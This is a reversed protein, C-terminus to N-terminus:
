QCYDRFTGDLWPRIEGAPAEVPYGLLTSLVGDRKNGGVACAHKWLGVMKLVPPFVQFSRPLASGARTAAPEAMSSTDSYVGDDVVQVAM